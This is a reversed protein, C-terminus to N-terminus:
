PSLIWTPKGAGEMNSERKRRVVKGTRKRGRVLGEGGRLGDDEDVEGLGVAEDVGGLEEVGECDEEGGGELEEGGDSDHFLTEEAGLTAAFPATFDLPLLIQKPSRRNGSTRNNTPQARAIQILKHAKNPTDRTHRQSQNTRRRVKIEEGEGDRRKEQEERSKECAEEVEM